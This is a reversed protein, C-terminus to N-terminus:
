KHTLKLPITTILNMEHTTSKHTALFM